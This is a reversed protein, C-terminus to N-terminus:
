ARPGEDVETQLAEWQSMLDGVEWMLKKHDEAAQEAQPRDDYFGPSAMRAELAKVAQEKEAVRKELDALRAKMKKLERDRAQRDPPSDARRLRPALPDYSPHRPKGNSGPDAPAKV